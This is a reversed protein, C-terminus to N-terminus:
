ISKEKEECFCQKCRKFKDALNDVERPALDQRTVFVLEYFPM